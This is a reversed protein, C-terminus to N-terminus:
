SRKKSRYLLLSILYSRAGLGGKNEEEEEEVGVRVHNSRTQHWHLLLLLVVVDNGNGNVVLLSLPEMVGCRVRVVSM